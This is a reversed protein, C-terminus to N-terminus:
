EAVAVVAAVDVAVAVGLSSSVIVKVLPEAVTILPLVTLKATQRASDGDACFNTLKLEFLM